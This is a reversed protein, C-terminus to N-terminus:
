AEVGCVIRRLLLSKFPIVDLRGKTMSMVRGKKWAEESVNERLMKREVNVLM